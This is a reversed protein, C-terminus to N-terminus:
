EGAEAVPTEVVGSEAAITETATAEAAVADAAQSNAVPCSGPCEAAGAACCESGADPCCSAAVTSVSMSSECCGSAVAGESCCMSESECPASGCPASGCTATACGKTGCEDEPYAAYTAGCGSGSSAPEIISLGTLNTFSKNLDPSAALALYGFGTLALGAVAARLLRVPMSVSSGIAAMEEASLTQSDNLLSGSDVSSQGLLADNKEGMKSEWFVISFRDSEVNLCLNGGAKDEAGSLPQSAMRDWAAGMWYLSQGFPSRYRAECELDSLQM